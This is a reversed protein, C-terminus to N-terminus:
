SKIEADRRKSEATCHWRVAHSNQLPPPPTLNMGAQNKYKKINCLTIKEKSPFQTGPDFFYYCYYYYVGEPIYRGLTLFLLLLLLLLRMQIAGYPRLKLPALM